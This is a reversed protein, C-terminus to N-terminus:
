TAEVAFARQFQHPNQVPPSPYMDFRVVPSSQTPTPVSAQTPSFSASHGRVQEPMTQQQLIPQQLIPQQVRTAQSPHTQQRLQQQQQQQQQNRDNEHVLHKYKSILSHQFVRQEQESLGAHDGHADQRFLTMMQDAIPGDPVGIHRRTVTFFIGELLPSRLKLQYRLEDALIPYGRGSRPRMAPIHIRNWQEHLNNLFVSVDGAHKRFAETEWLGSTRTNPFDAFFHVLRQTMNENKRLTNQIISLAGEAVDPALGLLRYVAERDISWVCLIQHLVIYFYDDTEIAEKLLRIRPTSTGDDPLKNIGGCFRVFGDLNEAM